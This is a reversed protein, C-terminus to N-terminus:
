RVAYQRLRGLNGFRELVRRSADIQMARTGLGGGGDPVLSRISGFRRARMEAQSTWSTPAHCGECRAALPRDLTDGGIVLNSLSLACHGDADPDTRELGGDRWGTLIKRRRYTFEAVAGIESAPDEIRRTQFTLLVETPVAELERSIWNAYEVLAVDIGRPLDVAEGAALRRVHDRADGRDFRLFIRVYSHGRAAITHVPLRGDEGELEHHQARLEAWGADPHGLDVPVVPHRGAPGIGELESRTPAFRAIARALLGQTREYADGRGSMEDFAMWLDRAFLARELVSKESLPPKALARELLGAIRELTADDFTPRQWYAYPPVPLDGTEVRQVPPDDPADGRRFDITRTYLERFLDGALGPYPVLDEPRAKAPEGCSALLVLAVPALQPSWKM